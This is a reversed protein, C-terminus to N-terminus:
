NVLADACKMEAYLFGTLNSMRARSAVVNCAGRNKEWKERGYSCLSVKCGDKERMRACWIGMPEEQARPQPIATLLRAGEVDVFHAVQELADVQRKYM